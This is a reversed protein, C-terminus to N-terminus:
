DDRAAHHVHLIEVLDGTARYFIRYPYRILPVTRVDDHDAVSRASLPWEGLRAVVAHIRQELPEVATPYHEATYTLISDLDAVAAETWRVRM